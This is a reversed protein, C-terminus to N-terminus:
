LLDVAFRVVPGGYADLSTSGTFSLLM